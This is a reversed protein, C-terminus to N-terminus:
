LRDFNNKINKKKQQYKNQMANVQLHNKIYNKIGILFLHANQCKICLCSEKEREKPPTIYFPKYKFFSSFSCHVNERLPLFKAHLKRIAETYILRQARTYTKSSGNRKVDVFESISECELAHKFEQLYKKKSVYIADCYM